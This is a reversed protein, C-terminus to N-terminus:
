TQIRSQWAGFQGRATELNTLATSLTTLASQASSQTTLSLTPLSYDARGPVTNTTTNALLVTVNDTSASTAALDPAGDGNFDTAVLGAASASVSYSARAKFTGDGNGIFVSVVGNTYDSSVVDLKGDGDLDISVLGYAPDTGDAYSVKAKFTGDGNGIE